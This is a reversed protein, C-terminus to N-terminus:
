WERPEQPIINEGRLCMVGEDHWRVVLRLDGGRVHSIHSKGLTGVCVGGLSEASESLNAGGGRKSVRPNARIGSTIDRMLRYSSGSCSVKIPRCSSGLPDGM